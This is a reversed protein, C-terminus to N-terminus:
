ALAPPLTLTREPDQLQMLVAFAERPTLILAEYDNAFQVHCFLSVRDRGVFWPVSRKKGALAERSSPATVAAWTFMRLKFGRQLATLIM